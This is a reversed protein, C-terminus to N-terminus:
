DSLQPRNQGEPPRGEFAAYVSEHHFMWFLKRELNIILADGDFFYRGFQTRFGVVFDKLHRAEISFPSCDKEYCIEATVLLEGEFERLDNLCRLIEGDEMDEWNPLAQWRAPSGDGWPFDAVDMESRFVFGFVEQFRSKFGDWSIKKFAPENM